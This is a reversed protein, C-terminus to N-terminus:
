VKINIKWKDPVDLPQTSLSPLVMRQGPTNPDIEDAYVDDDDLDEYDADDLPEGDADTDDSSTSQLVSTMIRVQDAMSAKINTRPTPTSSTSTSVETPAVALDKVAKLFEPYDDASLSAAFLQAADNMKGNNFAITSLLFLDRAVSVTSPAVTTSMAAPMAAEPPPPRAADPDVELQAELREKDAVQNAPPGLDDPHTMDPNQKHKPESKPTTDIKQAPIAQPEDPDEPVITPGAAEDALSISIKVTAPKTTTKM